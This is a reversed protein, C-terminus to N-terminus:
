RLGDLTQQFLVRLEAKSLGLALVYDEFGKATKAAITPKPESKRSVQKGEGQLAQMARFVAKRAAEFSAHTKDLVMPTKSLHHESKVLPCGSRAAAWEVVVPRADEVTPFGAAIMAECLTTNAKAFADLALFAQQKNAQQM